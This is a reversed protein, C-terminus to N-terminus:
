EAVASEGLYASAVDLNGRIEAPTGQALTRGQDLVQIRDCVEMVLAMNHDILLVGADFDERIAVVFEAFEKVESEPLGAGPEDLMVFAPETALARAVGLLREHGHSLEGAVAFEDLGLRLMLETALVRAKARTAGAGLASM